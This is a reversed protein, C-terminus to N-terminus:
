STFEFDVFDIDDLFWDDDTTPPLCVVDWCINTKFSLPKFENHAYELKIVVPANVVVPFQNIRAGNVRIIDSDTEVYNVTARARYGYLECADVLEDPVYIVHEHSGSSVYGFVKCYTPCSIAPEPPDVGCKCGLIIVEDGDSEHSEVIHCCDYIEELTPPIEIEKYRYVNAWKVFYDGDLVAAVFGEDFEYRGTGRAEAPIEQYIDTDARGKPHRTLGLSNYNTAIFEQLKVRYTAAYPDKKPPNITTGRGAVPQISYVAGPNELKDKVEQKVKVVRSTHDVDNGELDVCKLYRGDWIKNSAKPVPVDHYIYLMTSREYSDGESIAPLQPDTSYPAVIPQAQLFVYSDVSLEMDVTDGNHRFKVPEESLTTISRNIRYNVPATNSITPNSPNYYAVAATITEQYASLYDLQPASKFETKKISIVKDRLGVGSSSSRSAIPKYDSM